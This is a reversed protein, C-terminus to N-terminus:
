KDGKTKKGWITKLKAINLAVENLEPDDTKFGSQNFRVLEARTIKRLNNIDVNQKNGDLFFIVDNNTLTVGYYEEYVFRQKLEWKNPEAVKVEYYGDKSIRESGVERHNHPINGKKFMTRKVKEYVKPDMKKGKNIPVQRKKFQGGNTGSRIKYRSKFNKIQSKNLEISFKELFMARIESEEHGPIIQKMYAVMDPNEKWKIM